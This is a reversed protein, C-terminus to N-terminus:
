KIYKALTAQLDAGKLNAAIIKGTPDILYNQPIGTVAYSRAAANEWGRLDSVQTWTLQDDAIAKVWKARDKEGDLSVGLVEFNRSKYAAYAKAVNPNEQRCPGCWSAWFDVLVYKGRYDRLAVTKGDPTQQSFEPAQAGIAVTKLGKVMKGYEQGQPTNKLAPSLAEYLPGVTAYQPLDRGQVDLLADLSVQSNPNAKVFAYNAAAFQKNFEAFRAQIKEGFTPDQRQQETATQLEAGYAQIQAIVPALATKLRGYDKNLGGGVITAHALSDPSTVAVTSPELYLNARDLEQGRLSGMRGTRRLVLTAMAPAEATGKLEFTGNKLTASDTVTMGRLLYVKAPPNLQGLKGKITFPMATQANALWPAVLLFGLLCKKM